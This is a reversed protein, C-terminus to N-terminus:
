SVFTYYNLPSLHHTTHPCLPVLKAWCGPSSAAGTIIQRRTEGGGAGGDDGRWSPRGGAASCVHSRLPNPNPNRATKGNKGVVVPPNIFVRRTLMASTRRLQQLQRLGVNIMEGVTMLPVPSPDCRTPRCSLSARLLSAASQGRCM